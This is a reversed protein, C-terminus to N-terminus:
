ASLRIIERRLAATQSTPPGSTEPIQSEPKAPESLLRVLTSIFQSLEFGDCIRHDARVCIPAFRQPVAKGDSWVVREEPRGLTVSLPKSEDPQRSPKYGRMVPFRAHSFDNVLVASERMRDMRGFIPLPFVRDLWQTTRFAVRFLWGPMRRIRERDRQCPSDNRHFSLQARWIFNATQVVTKRDVDPVLVINVENYGPIRTALCVNCNAYEFVRRGVVRRNLEPHTALAQGVAHVLLHTSGIMTPSNHNSNEIYRLIHDWRIESTWIITSDPGGQGRANLYLLNYFPTESRSVPRSKLPWKM